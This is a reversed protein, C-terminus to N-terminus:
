GTSELPKKQKSCSGCYIATLVLLVGVTELLDVPRDFLFVEWIFALAPQLLLVLGATTVPVARMSSSILTWGLTTSLIGVGLLMGLTRLDSIVFSAGNISGALALLATSTLSIVFMSSKAGLDSSKMTQHLFLIYGSYLLASLLGMTIGLAQSGALAEFDAGTILYLGCLAVPVSFIFLRTVRQKFLLFSFAATFFVQLNTVLTAVGPGILHISRHWCMFDFALFAGGGALFLIQKKSYIIKERSLSLLFGIGLGAFLMRYFASSDPPMNSAKIFIPALSICITGIFLHVIPKQFFIILYRKM